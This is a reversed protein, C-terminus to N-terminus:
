QDRMQEVEVYPKRQKLIMTMREALPLTTIRESSQQEKGQAERLKAEVDKM